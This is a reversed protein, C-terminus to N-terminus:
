EASEELITTNDEIYTDLFESSCIWEKSREPNFKEVVTGEDGDQDMIILEFDVGDTFGLVNAVGGDVEILIRLM